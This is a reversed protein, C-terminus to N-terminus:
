TRYRRRFVAHYRYRKELDLIGWIFMGIGAVWPVIPIGLEDIAKGIICSGIILMVTIWHPIGYVVEAQCGRCVKAGFRLQKYCHPCEISDVKNSQM